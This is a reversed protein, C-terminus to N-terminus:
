PKSTHKMFQQTKPNAPTNWLSNHKLTQQHTEYVTTQKLTQQHTEYVTTQKLTQQHTEHEEEAQLQLLFYLILLAILQTQGFAVNSWQSWSFCLMETFLGWSKYYM